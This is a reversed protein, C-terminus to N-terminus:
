AHGTQGPQSAQVTHGVRYFQQECEHLWNTAARLQDIPTNLEELTKAQAARFTEVLSTCEEMFKTYVITLDHAMQENRSLPRPQRKFLSLLGSPRAREPTLPEPEVATVPHTEHIPHLKSTDITLAAQQGPAAQAGAVRQARVVMSTQVLSDFDYLSQELQERIGTLGYIAVELMLVSHADQTTLNKRQIDAVDALHGLQGTFADSIKQAHEPTDIEDRSKITGLLPGSISVESARNLRDALGKAHQQGATGVRVVFGALAEKFRM